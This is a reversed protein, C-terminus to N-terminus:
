PVPPIAQLVLEMIDMVQLDLKQRRARGKITRVCQQCSTVVTKAGTRQIEEIKKRAIASSLQPAV